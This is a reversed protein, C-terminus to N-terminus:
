WGLLNGRSGDAQSAGLDIIAALVNLQFKLELDLLEITTPQEEAGIAMVQDDRRLGLSSLVEDLRDTQRISPMIVEDLRSELDSDEGLLMADGAGTDQLQEWEGLEAWFDQPM